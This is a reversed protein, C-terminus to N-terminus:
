VWMEKGTKPAIDFWEDRVWQGEFDTTLRTWPMARGPIRDGNDLVRPTIFFFPGRTIGMMGYYWVKLRAMAGADNLYEEIKPFTVPNVQIAQM